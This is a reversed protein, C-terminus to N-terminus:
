ASMKRPVLVRKARKRTGYTGIMKRAHHASFGLLSGIREPTAGESRLRKVEDITSQPFVTPKRAM